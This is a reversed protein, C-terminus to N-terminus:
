GLKDGRQLKELRASRRQQEVPKKQAKQIRGAQRPKLTNSTKTPKSRSRRKRSAKPTRESTFTNSETSSPPSVPAPPLQHPAGARDLRELARSVFRTRSQLTEQQLDPLLQLLESSIEGELFISRKKDELKDRCNAVVANLQKALETELNNPGSVRAIALVLDEFEERGLVRMRVHNYKEHLSELSPLEAPYVRDCTAEQTRNPTKLNVGAKLAPTPWSRPSLAPSPPNQCRAPM